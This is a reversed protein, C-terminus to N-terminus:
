RPLRIHRESFDGQDARTHCASCQAPSKVSQLKWTAIPVEDHERVFWSARTIRDDPPQERARKGSGAQTQLWDSLKQTLAADLSADSGYHTQLRRMQRQWSAAPLLRPPYALHCAGCEQAYEPLLPVPRGRADDASAPGALVAALLLAM